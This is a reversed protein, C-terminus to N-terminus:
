TAPSPRRRPERGPARRHGAPLLRPAPRARPEQLRAPRARLLRAGEQPRHRGLRLAHRPVEQAEDVVADGAVTGAALRRGCGAAQQTTSPPPSRPRRVAAPSSARAPGLLALQAQIQSIRGTVDTVSMPRRRPAAPACPQGVIDDLRAPRPAAPAGRRPAPGARELLQEVARSGRGTAGALPPPGRRRRHPTASSGSSPRASRSRWPPSCAGAAPSRTSATPTAAQASPRPPRAPRRPQEEAASRVSPSPRCSASGATGSASRASARSPACAATTSARREHVGGAGHLAHWTATSSATADDM